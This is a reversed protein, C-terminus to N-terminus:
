ELDGENLNFFHKIFQKVELNDRPTSRKWKIAEQKILRIATPCLISYGKDQLFEEDIEKLTKLKIIDEQESTGMDRVQEMITEGNKAICGM